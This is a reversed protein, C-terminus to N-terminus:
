SIGWKAALGAENATASENGSYLLVEFIYGTIGNTETFNSGLTIPDFSGAGFDFTGASVGDERFESSAGNFLITQYHANTDSSVSTDDNGTSVIWTGTGNHDLYSYQRNSAGKKGDFMTDFAAGISTLKYVIFLTFPQAINSMAYELNDTEGTFLLGPLSNQVGTRYVPRKAPEDQTLDNSNALDSWTVVPDTDSLGTIASADWWALPSGSPVFDAAGNINQINAALVSNVEVWTSVSNVKEIAM